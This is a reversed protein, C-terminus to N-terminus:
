VVLHSAVHINLTAQLDVDNKGQSTLTAKPHDIDRLGIDPLDINYCWPQVRAIFVPAVVNVEGFMSWGSAVNVEWPM